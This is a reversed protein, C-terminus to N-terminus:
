SCYSSLWITLFTDQSVGTVASFQLQNYASLGDFLIESNSLLSKDTHLVSLSQASRRLQSVPLPCLTSGVSQFSPVPIAAQPSQGTVICRSPPQSYNHLFVEQTHTCMRGLFVLIYSPNLYPSPPPLKALSNSQYIFVWPQPHLEHYLAQRTHM